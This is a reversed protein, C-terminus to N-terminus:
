SISLGGPRHQVRPCLCDACLRDYYKGSPSFIKFDFVRLRFSAYRRFCGRAIRIFRDTGNPRQERKCIAFDVREDTGRRKGNSFNKTRKKIQWCDNMRGKNSSNEKKLCSLK